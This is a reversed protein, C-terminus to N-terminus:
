RDAVRVAGAALECVAAKYGAYPDIVVSEIAVVDDGLLRLPEALV